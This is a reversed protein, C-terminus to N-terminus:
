VEEELLLLQLILSIMLMLLLFTIGFESSRDIRIICLKVELYTDIIM